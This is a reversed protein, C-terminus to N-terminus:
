RLARGAALCDLAEEIGAYVKELEEATICYPPMIYIVNGLPRLLLGKALFFYYLEDRINNFYSTAEATKFEIALITGQQRVDKAAAHTKMRAAFGEHHSMIRQIDVQHSPRELIDLSALGAACGSPNATYSHGHFFTKYKDTSLFAEFIAETCTTVALPLTGGTIGKALCILDPKESLYDSALFRGTRYFGTMVEDAITLVDAAKCLGILKSLPEADYMIMGGAGQILPEFLFAYADGKALVNKLAQISKEENGKTPAPIRIVEFLHSKFANNLSLDASASM